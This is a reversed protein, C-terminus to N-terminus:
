LRVGEPLEDLLMGKSEANRVADTAKKGGINELAGAVTQRVFLSKDKLADILPGVSTKDRREGLQAAVHIRVMYRPDDLAEVLIGTARKDQLSGLREIAGMAIQEDSSQIEKALEDVIASSTEVPKKKTKKITPKEATKRTTTETKKPAPKKKAAAKKGTEKKKTKTSTTSKKAKSTSTKAPKKKSTKETKSTKSVREMGRFCRKKVRFMRVGGTNVTKVSRVV